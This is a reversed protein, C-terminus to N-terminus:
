PPSVTVAMVSGDGGIAVGRGDDLLRLLGLRLDRDVGLATGAEDLLTLETATCDLVWIRDWPDVVSECGGHPLAQLVRGTTPDLRLITETDDISVVLRGASDFAASHAHGRFRPDSTEDVIWLPTGDPGVKTIREAGDDTVYVNGADDVGLDFPITFQGPASGLGGFARLFDGEATFVQVRHNDADSVYVFGDPGIAIAGRANTGGEFTGFDFQGEGSGPGGWRGVVSGDPSIRTVHQSTDSVYIDGSESMAAGLPREIGLGSAAYRSTIELPVAGLTRAPEDSPTSASQSASAAPEITSLPVAGLEPGSEFVTLTGNDTGVALAGQALALCCGPRSDLALAWRRTGTSVDLGYVQRETVSLVYATDGGIAAPRLTGRPPSRWREVGTTADRGSVSGDAGSSVALDGAVAPAFLADSTQWAPAGDAIRYARLTGPVNEDGPGAWVIGNVAVPVGALPADIRATWEEVGSDRRFAVLRGDNTAVLVLDGAVAIGAIPVASGGLEAQWRPSGDRADIAAVGGDSTAVYVAGDAVGPDVAPDGLAVATWAPSGDDLRFAHVSGGGDEVFVLHGDTAPPGIGAGIQASWREDGMLLDLAHLTGDISSVVVLGDVILPTAVISGSARFTWRVRPEGTPGSVAAGARSANGSRGTWEDRPTVPTRLLAGALLAAGVLLLAAALLLIRNRRVGVAVRTPLVMPPAALLAVVTPLPRGAQTKGLIEALLREPPQGVDEIMAAVLARELGRDMPTTM